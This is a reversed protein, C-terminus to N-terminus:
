KKKEYQAPTYAKIELAHIDEIASPGLATHVMQHRELIKMGEFAPSVVLIWFKDGCGDSLDHVSVCDVDKIGERLLIELSDPTHKTKSM